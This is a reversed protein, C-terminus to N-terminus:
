RAATLLAGAKRTTTSDAVATGSYAALSSETKHGTISMTQQRTLNTENCLFQVGGHRVSKAELRSDARRLMRLSAAMLDRHPKGRPDCFLWREGQRSAIYVRLPALYPPSVRSALVPNEQLREAAKGYTFRCTLDGNALLTVEKTELTAADGTRGALSLAITLLSREQTEAPPSLRQATAFHELTMATPVRKRRRCMKQAGKLADRWTASQNLDLSFPTTTYLELRSLAGMLVGMETRLTGPMKPKGNAKPTKYRRETLRVMADALSLQKDEAPLSAAAKLMQRHRQRQPRSLGTESLWNARVRMVIGGLAEGKLAALTPTTGQDAGFAQAVTGLSLKDSRIPAETADPQQDSDDEEVSGVSSLEDDDHSPATAPAPAAPPPPPPLTPSPQGTSPQPVSATVSTPAPAVYALTSGPPQAPLGDAARAAGISLDVASGRGARDLLVLVHGDPPFPRATVATRQRKGDTTVTVVRATARAAPHPPEAITFTGTVASGTGLPWAEARVTDNVVLTKYAARVGPAVHSDVDRTAKTPKAAVAPTKSQAHTKPVITASAKPVIKAAVPATTITTTPPPPNLSAPRPLARRGIDVIRWLPPPLDYEEGDAPKGDITEYAVRVKGGDTSCVVGAGTSQKGNTSHAVRVAVRDGVALAAYDQTLARPMFEALADSTALEDMRRAYLPAAHNACFGDNTVAGNCWRGTATIMYACKDTRDSQDVGGTEQVPPAISPANTAPAATHNVPAGTTAANNALPALPPPIAPPAPGVVTAHLAMTTAYPPPPRM